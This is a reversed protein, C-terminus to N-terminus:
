GKNKGLLYHIPGHVNFDLLVSREDGNVFMRGMYQDGEFVGFDIEQDGHGKIWGVVAGEETHPFSLMEYVENLFVHGRGNLLENAWNQQCKIFMQNHMPDKKWRANSEDFMVSYISGGGETFGVQDVGRITKEAIGEDTEVGITREVVGYRFEQDKEKGLENVVRGRYENFAKSVGVLAMSLGTNRKTLINHSGIFCAISAGGVIITPAYAKAINIAMKVRITLRDKNQDQETYSLGAEKAKVKAEEVKQDQTEAEELIDSLKLTARSALAVTAVFGVVGAGLLLVPSHTKVTLVQSGVKNTVKATLDKFGM